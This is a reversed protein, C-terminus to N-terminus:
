FCGCDAYFFSGGHFYDENSNHGGAFPGTLVPGHSHWDVRLLEANPNVSQAYPLEYDALYDMKSYWSNWIDNNIVQNGYDGICDNSISKWYFPKVHTSWQSPNSMGGTPFYTNYTHVFVSFPQTGSPCNNTYAFAKTNNIYSDLFDSADVNGQGSPCWGSRMAAYVSGSPTMWNPEILGPFLTLSLSAEDSSVSLLQLDAILLTEDKITDIQQVIENQLDRYLAIFDNAEIFYNNLEDRFINTTFNATISPLEVANDEFNANDANILGEYIYFVDELAVDNMSSVKAKGSLIMDIRSKTSRMTSSIEKIDRQAFKQVSRLMINEAAEEPKEPQNQLTETKSCSSVIALVFLIRLYHTIKM